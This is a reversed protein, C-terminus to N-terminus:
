VIEVRPKGFLGQPRVAMLTVLMAGILIFRTVSAQPLLLNEWVAAALYLVPAIAIARVNDNRILTLGLVAAVLAIYMLRGAAGAPVGGETVLNAPLLVWDSLREDIWTDGVSQGAVLSPKWREAVEHVVLGLVVTGAIVSVFRWWPRLLMALGVVVAAAFLWSANEPTRLVELTANLLVAGVAVGFLSGTGGLVVMAYLTILIPIAFDTPFVAGQQSAFILGALGAVGAGFAFGLLKLRATPMTLLEAALEDERLARWARGTRSANVLYLIGMVVAVAAVAVYYNALLSDATWGFFDLPLVDAIGNPGQTFNSNNVTVLFIQLFFLTVIALYDGSLRRSPLGLVYGVIGTALVVAAIALPADWSRGSYGSAVAAYFYAGIGFFAIYGLDLLGVWGVTVNLGLALLVFILTDLGVQRLFDSGAFVPYLALPVVILALRLVPPIREVFDSARTTLTQARREEERSVWEDVGIGPSTDPQEPREAM